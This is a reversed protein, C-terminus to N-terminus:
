FDFNAPCSFDRHTIPLRNRPASLRTWVFGYPLWPYWMYGYSVEHPTARAYEDALDFPSGGDWREVRHECEVDDNHRALNSQPTISHGRQGQPAESRRLARAHRRRFCPRFGGALRAKMSSRRFPDRERRPGLWGPRRAAPSSCRFKRASSPLARRLGSARMSSETASGLRRTARTSLATVNAPAPM